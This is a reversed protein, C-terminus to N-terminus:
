TAQGSCRTMPAVLPTYRIPSHSTIKNKYFEVTSTSFGIRKSPLGEMFASLDVPAAQEPKSLDPMGQYRWSKILSALQKSPSCSQKGIAKTKTKALYSMWKFYADKYKQEQLPMGFPYGDPSIVQYDNLYGAKQLKAMLHSLSSKKNKKGEIVIAVHYHAGTEDMEKVTYRLPVYGYKKFHKTLMASFKAVSTGDSLRFRLHFGLPSKFVIDSLNCLVYIEEVQKLVCPRNANCNIPKGMFSTLEYETM